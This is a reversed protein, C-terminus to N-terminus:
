ASPPSYRSNKVAAENDAAIAQEVEDIHDYAYALADHVDAPKLSPYQCVIEKVSMGLRCCGLIVSVRIRTNTIVAQGGCRSPDKEINRYDFKSMEGSSQRNRRRLRFASIPAQIERTPTNRAVRLKGVISASVQSSKEPSKTPITPAIGNQL